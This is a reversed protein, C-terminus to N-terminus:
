QTKARRDAQCTSETLEINREHAAGVDDGGEVGRQSRAQSAQGDDAVHAGHGLVQREAAPPQQAEGIMEDEHRQVCPLAEGHSHRVVRRRHDAVTEVGCAHVM